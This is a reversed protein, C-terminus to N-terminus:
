QAQTGLPGGDTRRKDHFTGDRQYIDDLYRVGGRPDAEATFYVVYIRIPPTLPITRTTTASAARRLRLSGRKGLLQEALPMPRETRLCGDSFVRKRHAAGKRAPAGAVEMPHAIQLKFSIRSVGNSNPRHRPGVLRDATALQSGSGTHIIPCPANRGPRAVMVGTVLADFMPPQREGRDIVLHRSAVVSGHEILDIRAAAMNVWLYREGLKRPMHRWRDLNVALTDCQSQQGCQLWATALQGYAPHTPRLARLSALLHHHALADALWRDYDMRSRRIAWESRDAPKESGEFLDHALAKAAAAAAADRGPYGLEAPDYDAARMGNREAEVIAQVLQWRDEQIWLPM